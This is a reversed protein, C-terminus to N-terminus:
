HAITTYHFDHKWSGDANHTTEVWGTAGAFKGTGGIIPRVIVDGVKLAPSESDYIATGAVNMQDAIDGFMFNLSTERIEKGASPTNVAMTTLSGTFRGGTPSTAPVNYYRKDGVTTGPDASPVLTIEDPTMEAHTFVIEQLVPGASTASVALGIGFGGVALALIGVM